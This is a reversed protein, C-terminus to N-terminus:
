PKKRLNAQATLYAQIKQTDQEALAQIIEMDNEALSKAVEKEDELRQLDKTYELTWLDVLEQTPIDPLPWGVLVGQNTQIGETGPFKFGLVLALPINNEIFSRIM